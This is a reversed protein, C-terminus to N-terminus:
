RDQDPIVLEPKVDLAKKLPRCHGFFGFMVIDAQKEKNKRSNSVHLEQWSRAVVFLM